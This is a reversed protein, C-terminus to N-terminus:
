KYIKHSQLMGLLLLLLLQVAQCAAYADMTDLHQWQQWPCIIRLLRHSVAALAAIPPLCM